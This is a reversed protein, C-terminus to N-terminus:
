KPLMNEGRLIVWNSYSIDPRKHVNTYSHYLSFRYQQGDKRVDEAWQAVEKTMRYFGYCVAIFIFIWGFFRVYKDFVSRELSGEVLDYQEKKM